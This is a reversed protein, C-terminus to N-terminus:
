CKTSRRSAADLFSGKIIKLPRGDHWFTLSQKSMLVRCGTPLALFGAIHPAELIAQYLSIPRLNDANDYDIEGDPRGVFWGSHEPESETRDLFLTDLGETWDAGVVVSSTISPFDLEDEFGLSEGTDKQLRLLKLSNTIGETWTVPDTIGDTWSIPMTRLDPEQLTLFGDSTALRLFMSGLQIHEGDAFHTGERVSEELFSAFNDVDVKPIASDVVFRFDPHKHESCDITVTRARSM